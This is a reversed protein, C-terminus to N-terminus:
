FKVMVHVWLNKLKNECCRYGLEGGVFKWQTGNGVQMDLV